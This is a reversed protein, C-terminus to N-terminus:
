MCVCHCKHCSVGWSDAVVCRCCGIRVEPASFLPTGVSTSLVDDAGTGKAKSTGFDTIKAVLFDSVLVNDPKLDRHVICRKHENAAEDFFARAHLYAMGRAVDAALRLLPENWTLVLATDLLMDGLSGKPVWELVLCTL